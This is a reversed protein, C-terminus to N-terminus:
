GNLKDVGYDDALKADPRFEETDIEIKEILVQKLADEVLM